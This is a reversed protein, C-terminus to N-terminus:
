RFALSVAKLLDRIDSFDKELAAKIHVGDASPLGLLEIAKEHKTFISSLVSKHRNFIVLVGCPPCRILERGNFGYFYVHTPPTLQPFGPTCMMDYKVRKGFVDAVSLVHILCSM